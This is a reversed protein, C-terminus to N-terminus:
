KDESYIYEEYVDILLTTVEAKTKLNKNYKIHKFMEQEYTTNNRKSESTIMERLETRTM